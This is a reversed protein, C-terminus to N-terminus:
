NGIRKTTAPVGTSSFGLIDERIKKYDNNLSDFYDDDIGNLCIKQFEKKSEERNLLLYKLAIM